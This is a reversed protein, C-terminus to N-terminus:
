LMLLLSKIKAGPMANLKRLHDVTVGKAMLSKVVEIAEGPLDEVGNVALPENVAFKAILGQMLAPIHPTIMPMIAGIYDPQEDEDEDEDDELQQTALQNLQMEAIAARREAEILQQVMTADVGNIPNTTQYGNLPLRSFKLREVFKNKKYLAVHYVFPADKASNEEFWDFLAEINAKNNIPELDLLFKNLSAHHQLVKITDFTNTRKELYNQLRDFGVLVTTPTANTEM